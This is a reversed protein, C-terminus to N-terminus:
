LAETHCIYPAYSPLGTRRYAAIAALFREPTQAYLIITLWTM